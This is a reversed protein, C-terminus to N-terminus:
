KLWSSTIHQGHNVVYQQSVHWITYGTQSLAWGLSLAFNHKKNTYCNTVCLHSKIYTHKYPHTYWSLPITTPFNTTAWMSNGNLRLILSKDSLIIKLTSKTGQFLRHNVTSLIIEVLIKRLIVDFITSLFPLPLSQDDLAHKIVM